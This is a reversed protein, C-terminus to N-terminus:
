DYGFEVVDVSCTARARSYPLSCSPDLPPGDFYFISSKDIFYM